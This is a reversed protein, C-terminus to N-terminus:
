GSFGPLRIVSEGYDKDSFNGNIVKNATSNGGNTKSFGQNQSTRDGLSKQQVTWTELFEKNQGFFRKAQMVFCTGNSGNDISFKRYRKAGELMEQPSHGEAIRKNWQTLADKKPNNGEREPYIGWAENFYDMDTKSISKDIDIRNDTIPPTAAIEDVVQQPKTAPMGGLAEDNSVEDTAAKRNRTHQPYTAAKKKESKDANALGLFFVLREREISRKEVLGAKELWAILRFVQDRSYSAEKMGKHPEVYLVESLSKLSIGRKVGVLGTSYDMFPRIGMLYLVRAALPLGELASMEEDNFQTIM